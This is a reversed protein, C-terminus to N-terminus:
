FPVDDHFPLKTQLQERRHNTLAGDESDYMAIAANALLKADTLHGAISFHGRNSLSANARMRTLLVNMLARDRFTSPPVHRNIITFLEKCAENIRLYDPQLQEQTPVSLTSDQMLAEARTMFVSSIATICTVIAVDVLKYLEATRETPKQYTFLIDVEARTFDLSM